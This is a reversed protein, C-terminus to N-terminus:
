LPEIPHPHPHAIDTLIYRRYSFPVTYDNKFKVLVSNNDVITEDRYSSSSCYYGCGM